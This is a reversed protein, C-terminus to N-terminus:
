KWKKNYAKFIKIEYRKEEPTNMYAQVKKWCIIEQEKMIEEVNKGSEHLKIISEVGNRNM